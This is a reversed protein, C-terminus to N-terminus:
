NIGLGWLFAYSFARASLAKTLIRILDFSKASTVAKAMKIGASIDAMTRTAMVEALMRLALKHRPRALMSVAVIPQGMMIEIPM